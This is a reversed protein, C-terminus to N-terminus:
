RGRQCADLDSHCQLHDQKLAYFDPGDMVICKGKQGAPPVCFSLDKDNKPDVALLKGDYHAAQLGYYAYQFTAGACGM